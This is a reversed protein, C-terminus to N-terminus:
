GGGATSTVANFAIPALPCCLAPQPLHLPRRRRGRAVAPGLGSGSSSKSGSFLQAALKGVLQRGQRTWLAELLSSGPAAVTGSM